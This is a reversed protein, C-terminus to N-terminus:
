KPGYFVLDEMQRNKSPELQEIAMKLDRKRMNHHLKCLCENEFRKFNCKVKLGDPLMIEYSCVSSM